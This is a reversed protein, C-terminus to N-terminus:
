PVQLYEFRMIYAVSMRVNYIDAENRIWLDANFQM